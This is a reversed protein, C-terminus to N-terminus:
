GFTMTEGLSRSIRLESYHSTTAFVKPAESAAARGRPGALDERLARQKDAIV